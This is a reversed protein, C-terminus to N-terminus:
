SSREVVIRVAACSRRQYRPSWSVARTPRWPVPRHPAYGTSNHDPPTALQCVGMSLGQAPYHFPKKQKNISLGLLQFFSLFRVISQKLGIISFYQLGTLMLKAFPVVNTVSKGRFCHKLSWAVWQGWWSAGHLCFCLEAAEFQPQVSFFIAMLILWYLLMCYSHTTSNEACCNFKLGEAAQFNMSNPVNEGGALRWSESGAVRRRSVEGASHWSAKNWHKPVWPNWRTQGFGQRM